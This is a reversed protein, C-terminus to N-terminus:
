LMKRRKWKIIKKRWLSWMELPLLFRQRSFWFFLKFLRFLTRFVFFWYLFCLVSCLFCLYFLSFFSCFVSFLSLIFFVFFWCLFCLVLVFFLSGVVRSSEITEERPSECLDKSSPKSSRTLLLLLFTTLLLFLVFTTLLLFLVFTTLLLFLVFTTLLLFLVFTTLLLSTWHFQNLFVFNSCSKNLFLESVDIPSSSLIQIVAVLFSSNANIQCSHSAMFTHPQSNFDTFRDLLLCVAIAPLSSSSNSSSCSHVEFPM